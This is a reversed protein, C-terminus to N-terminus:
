AENPEEGFPIDELDFVPEDEPDTTTIQEAPEEEAAVGAKKKRRPRGLGPLGDVFLLSEAKISQETYRFPKDSRQFATRTRTYLTGTVFLRAGKRAFRSANTGTRGNCYVLIWSVVKKTQGGQKYYRDSALILAYSDKGTKVPDQALTGFVWAGSSM